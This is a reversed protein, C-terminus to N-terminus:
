YSCDATTALWRRSAYIWSWTVLSETEHHCRPQTWSLQVLKMWQGCYYIASSLLFSCSPENWSFLTCAYFVSLLGQSIFCFWLHIRCFCMGAERDSLSFDVHQWQCRFSLGFVHTSSLINNEERRNERRFKGVIAVTQDPHATSEWCASQNRPFDIVGWDQGNASGTSM